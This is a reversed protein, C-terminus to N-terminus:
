EPILQLFKDVDAFADKYASLAQSTNGAGAAKDIKVLDSLLDKTIQRAKSQDQPLLNPIVYTMNLRAETMPGHIFNGVKIWEGSQILTQLEQSRDRVVQIDPFYEQIKAVQAPTYTPPATAVSPSGCSILFTTLLVLILSLISRQRVM